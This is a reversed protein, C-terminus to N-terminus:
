ATGDLDAYARRVAPLSAAPGFPSRAAVEEAPSRNAHGERILWELETLERHQATVFHQDVPAGHGPLIVTSPGALRLLAALTAPWELPYGDGFAPPGASEVLDGAVLVDADPVAVVVDNDTHGRGLHHLRVERGGIDLRADLHFTRDPPHIQVAAIEDALAPDSGALEADLERQIKEGGSRLRAAAAEHGWVAAGGAALTANGFAHDFHHHTNVVTCPATTVRHAAEALEAAQRGTSLTDVLLAAGDGVVLTVSVDYVPYRLLHVGDAVEVFGTM